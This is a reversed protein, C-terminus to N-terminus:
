WSCQSGTSMARSRRIEIEFGSGACHSVFGYTRNNNETQNHSSEDDDHEEESHTLVSDDDEDADQFDSRENHSGHIEVAAVIETEPVTVKNNDESNLCCDEWNRYYPHIHRYSVKLLYPDFPFYSDLPNSGKGLGGVGGDLRKKEQTAATSIISSRKRSITATKIKDVRLNSNGEDNVRWLHDIFQKTEIERSETQVELSDELFLDLDEAVHLFEVRVSELCYKLPQLPHNCILKWRNPGLNVSEPQAYPSDNEDRHLWAQQYYHLAEAGRFCMIYFAAQCATYFLAHIDRPRQTIGLGPSAKQRIAMSAAGAEPESHAAIYVEVWQLIAAVCECVTEPCVYTARSVFSALCCVVTQSPLIGADVPNYFLDILKACFGRYLFDTQNFTESIIGHDIVVGSENEMMDMSNAVITQESTKQYNNPRKTMLNGAAELSDHERGFLVFYLFPVFKSRDTTRVKNDFVALLHRYLRRANVVAALAESLSDPSFSTLQEIHHCLTNMLYDLREAIESIPDIDDCSLDKKAEILAGTNVRDPFNDQSILHFLRKKSDANDEISNHDNEPDLVVGGKNNIKIQVDMELAQDVLLNM